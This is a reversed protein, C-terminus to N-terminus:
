RVAERVRMMRTGWDHEPYCASYWGGKRHPQPRATRRNPDCTEHHGGCCTLITITITERDQTCPVHSCCRERVMCTVQHLAVQRSFMRNVVCHFQVSVFHMRITTSSHHPSLLAVVKVELHTGSRWCADDNNSTTTKRPSERQRM